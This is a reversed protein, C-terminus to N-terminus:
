LPHYQIIFKALRKALPSHVKELKEAFNSAKEAKM